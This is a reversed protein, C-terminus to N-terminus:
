AIAPRVGYGIWQAGMRPHHPQDRAPEPAGPQRQGGLDAVVCLRAAAEISDNQQKSVKVLQAVAQAVDLDFQEMLLSAAECIVDTRGHRGLPRRNNVAVHNGPM